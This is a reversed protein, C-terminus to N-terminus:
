PRSGGGCGHWPKEDAKTQLGINLRNLGTYLDIVEYLELLAEDDLGAHKVAENYVGICYECGSMISVTLAVIDKPKRGLKGEKGMVAQVRRWTMELYDPNGALAKYMNPVFDIGLTHKIDEYLKETKGAAEGEEVLKVAAKDVGCDDSMETEEETIGAAVHVKEPVM